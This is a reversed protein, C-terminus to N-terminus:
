FLRHSGIKGSPRAEILFGEQVAMVRSIKAATDPFVFNGEVDFSPVRICPTYSSLALIYDSVLPRRPFNCQRLYEESRPLLPM